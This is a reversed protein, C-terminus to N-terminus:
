APPHRVLVLDPTKRDIAALALARDPAIDVKYGQERLWDAMSELVHRDDDVLLLSGKIMAALLDDLPQSPETDRGHKRGRITVNDASRQRAATAM